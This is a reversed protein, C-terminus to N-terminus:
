IQRPLVLDLSGATPLRLIYPNGSQYKGVILLHTEGYTTVESSLMLGACKNSSIFNLHISLETLLLVEM